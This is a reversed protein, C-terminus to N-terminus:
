LLALECTCCVRPLYTSFAAAPVLKVTACMFDRNAAAVTFVGNDSLLRRIPADLEWPEPQGPQRPPQQKREGGAPASADASLTVDALAVAADTDADGAAGAAVSSKADGAGGAAAKKAPQPGHCRLEAPALWILRRQEPFRM